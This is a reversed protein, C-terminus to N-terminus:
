IMPPTNTTLLPAFSIIQGLHNLCACGCSSYNLSRTDGKMLGIVSGLRIGWIVGEEPTQVRFGLGWIRFGICVKQLSNLSYSM